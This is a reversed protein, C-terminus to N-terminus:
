LLFGDKSDIGKQLIVKALAQLDASEKANAYEEKFVDNFLKRGQELAASDPITLKKQLKIAPTSEVETQQGSTPQTISVSVCLFWFLGAILLVRRM